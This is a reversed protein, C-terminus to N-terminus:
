DVLYFEDIKDLELETADNRNHYMPSFRAGWVLENAQYSTSDHVLQAFTDDYGEILIIIEAQSELLGEETVEFLPSDKTIAHVLTWNLPFLFVKSRELPLQAYRRVPREGEWVVWSLTVKAELNILKNNRRNAIRFQLSTGEQYPSILAIRCFLIQAKPRSFRAFFLGTALAVSILGFLADLSALANAGVGIPSVAGYGVTTFTQISFFFMQLFEWWAPGSSVGSFQDLGVALFALAFGANIVLYFALVLALFSVWGMEVLSQYPTWTWLGTRKVNFSGDRNLLRYREATLQVGFGLDQDEGKTSGRRNSFSPIRM